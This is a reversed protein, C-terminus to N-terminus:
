IYLVRSLPFSFLVCGSSAATESTANATPNASTQEDIEPAIVTHDSVNCSITTGDNWDIKIGRDATDVSQEGIQFVPDKLTVVDTAVTTTTGNVILNGRVTVDNLNGGIEVSTTETTTITGSCTINSVTLNGNVSLNDTQITNEVKLSKLTSQGSVNLTNKFTSNSNVNIEGDGADLTLDSNFINLNNFSM